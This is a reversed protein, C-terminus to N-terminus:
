KAGPRVDPARIEVIQFRGDELRSRLYPEYATPPQNSAMITICRGEIAREYRGDMIPFLREVAFPTTQFRDFEDILLIPKSIWREQRRRLEGPNDQDFSGRLDDMIALMTTPIESGSRRDSATAKLLMTKGVGPRGHLYVWGAGVSLVFQIARVADQINGVPRIKDWTVRFASEGKGINPCKHPENGTPTPTTYWGRGACYECDPHCPTTRVPVQFDPYKTRANEMARALIREKEQPSLM